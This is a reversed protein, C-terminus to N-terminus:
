ASTDARSHRDCGILFNVMKFAHNAQLGLKHGQAGRYYNYAAPRLPLTRGDIEIKTAGISRRRRVDRARHRRTTAAPITTIREVMGRTQLRRRPHGSASSRRSAPEQGRGHYSGELAFEGISPDDWLKARNDIADWVYIKGEANRV